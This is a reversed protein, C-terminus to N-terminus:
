QTKLGPAEALICATLQMLTKGQSADLAVTIEKKDNGVFVIKEVQQAALKKLLTTPSTNNKFIFHFLGECNMSGANRVSQKSKSGVFYIYAQSADTFCRDSGKITFLMDIDDKSADISVSAGELPVFGTTLTTIRTYPDTQRKLKCDQSFVVTPVLLLLLVFNRM